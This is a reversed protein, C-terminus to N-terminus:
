NKARIGLEYEVVDLYARALIVSSSWPYSSVLKEYSEKAKEWMGMAEYCRGTNFVAQPCLYSESYDEYVKRYADIAKQFERREECVFGLGCQARVSFEGVPYRLLYDNFNAEASELRGLRCLSEGIYILAIECAKSRPYDKRVKEFFSLADSCKGERFATQGSGLLSIAAVERQLRHSNVLLLVVVVVVVAMFICLFLRTRKRAFTSAVSLLESLKDEKLKKGHVKLCNIWRMRM